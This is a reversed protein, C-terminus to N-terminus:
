TLLFHLVACIFLAITISSIALLLLDGHDNDNKNKM